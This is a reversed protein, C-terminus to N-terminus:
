SQAYYRGRDGTVLLFERWIFRMCGESSGSEQRVRVIRFEMARIELGSTVAIRSHIVLSKQIYGKEDVVM